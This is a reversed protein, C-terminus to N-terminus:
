ICSPGFINTKFIVQMHWFIEVRCLHIGNLYQSFSNMGLFCSLGLQMDGSTVWAIIFGSSYARWWCQMLATFTQHAGPVHTQWASTLGWRMNSRELLGVGADQEQTYLLKSLANLYSCNQCDLWKALHQWILLYCGAREAFPLSRSQMVWKSSSSPHRFKM